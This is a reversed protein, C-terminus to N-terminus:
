TWDLEDEDSPGTDDPYFLRRDWVGIPVCLRNFYGVKLSEMVLTMISTASLMLISALSVAPLLLVGTTSTGDLTLFSAKFITSSMHLAPSTPSLTKTVAAFIKRSEVFASINNFM